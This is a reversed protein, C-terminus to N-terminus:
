MVGGTQPDLVTVRVGIMTDFPNDHDLGATVVVTRSGLAVSVRESEAAFTGGSRAM